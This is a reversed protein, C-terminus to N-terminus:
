RVEESEASGEILPPPPSPLRNAHTPRGDMSPRVRRRPPPPPASLQQVWLQTAVARPHQEGLQRTYIDHSRTFLPLAQDTEGMSALLGALNNLSSAM